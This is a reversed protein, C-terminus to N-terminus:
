AGRPRDLILARSLYYSVGHISPEGGRRQIWRTYHMEALRQSMRSAPGLDPGGGTMLESSGIELEAHDGGSAGMGRLKETAGFAHGLFSVLAPVDQVFPYATITQTEM